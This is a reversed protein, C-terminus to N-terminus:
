RLTLRVPWRAGTLAELFTSPPRLRRALNCLEELHRKIELPGTDRYVVAGLRVALLRWGSETTYYGDAWPCRTLTHSTWDLVGRCVQRIDELARNLEM